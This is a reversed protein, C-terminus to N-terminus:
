RDEELRGGKKELSVAADNFNESASMERRCDEWEGGDGGREGVTERREVALEECEYM